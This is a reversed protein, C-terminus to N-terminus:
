NEGIERYQRNVDPVPIRRLVHHGRKIVKEQLLWASDKLRVSVVRM